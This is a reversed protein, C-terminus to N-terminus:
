RRSWFVRRNGKARGGSFRGPASRPHLRGSQNAGLMQMQAQGPQDCCTQPAQMSGMLVPIHRTNPTQAWLHWLVSSNGMLRANLTSRSFIQTGGLGSWSRYTFGLGQHSPTQPHVKLLQNRWSSPARVIPRTGKHVLSWPERAEKAM